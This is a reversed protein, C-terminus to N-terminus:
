VPALTNNPDFVAHHEARTLGDLRYQGLPAPLDVCWKDLAEIEQTPNRSAQKPKQLPTITAPM